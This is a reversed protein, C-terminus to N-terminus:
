TVNKLWIPVAIGYYYKKINKRLQDQVINFDTGFMVQLLALTDENELVSEKYHTPLSLASLNSWNITHLPMKKDMQLYELLNSFTATQGECSVDVSNELSSLIDGFYPNFEQALQIGGLLRAITIKRMLQLEVSSNNTTISGVIGNYREFSFCWFSHIPGYDLTVDKLHCHLHMNPTIALNGYLTQFKRCFKLLMLDAKTIDEETIKRKLHEDGVIDKLAYLSYVLTCNKWQKATYCGHNSSIKQPTLNKTVGWIQPCM